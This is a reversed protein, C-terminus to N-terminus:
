FQTLALNEYGSITISCAISPTGSTNVLNTKIQSSTNTIAEFYGVGLTVGNSIYVQGDNSAITASTIDADYAKLHASGASSAVGLISGRVKTKIGLPTRITRLTESGASQSAGNISNIVTQFVFHQMTQTFRLINGSSDTHVTGEYEFKTYGSPLVSTPNPATGAVGLLAGYDSVGTSPNYIAFLHYDSSNARAGSLLMNGGAGASWAGSSQLRKTLASAVEQGSGDSFKFVGGSFDIDTNPTTANNAITIPNNLYTIGQTTTTAPNIKDTLAMAGAGTFYPIKNSAGTLGSLATLNSNLQQADLTTRAQSATTDDLLTKIYTSVPALSVDALNKTTLNDGASNICIVEDAVSANIPFEINTLSSSKPLRVVRNLNEQIQLTQLTLKDLASEVAKGSYKETGSETFEANQTLNVKRLISVKHGNTPATNFVVNCIPIIGNEITTYTITYDTTETKNTEIGSTDTTIVELSFKPTSNSEYFIPFDVAFTINSGNATYDKRLIQTTITM